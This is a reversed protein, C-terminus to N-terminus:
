LEYIIKIVKPLAIKQPNVESGYDTCGPKKVLASRIHDSNILDCSLTGETNNCVNISFCRSELFCERRCKSVDSIPLITRITHNTLAKGETIKKVKLNRCIGASYHMFVYPRATVSIPLIYSNECM